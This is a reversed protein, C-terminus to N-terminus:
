VANAAHTIRVPSTLENVMHWLMRGGVAMVEDPFSYDPQHLGAAEAGIGLGFYLTRCVRAYYGFDESWRFPLKAERSPVGERECALRLLEVLESDNLTAPFAEVWEITPKLDSAAAAKAVLRECDRRLRALGEGTASRLTAYLTANGPTIGFSPRGMHAHTITILRYPPEELETLGPLGGLLEILAATPTRAQEPEAAHAAEGELEVRMGVSASAFTGHRYVVTGLPEGPLNHLAVAIDPSLQTFAPDEIVRLAGEGTEEAPQFLLVVQGRRPPDQQLRPALGAVMAMHGDHGCRHVIENEERLADLESRVVVTPGAWRGAFVAAVGHGGIGTILQDPHYERLFSEVVSATLAESGAPEACAHLTARLTRLMQALLADSENM